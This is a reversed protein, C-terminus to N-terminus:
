ANGEKKEFRKCAAAKGYRWDRWDDMMEELHQMPKEDHDGHNQETQRSPSKNAYTKNEM